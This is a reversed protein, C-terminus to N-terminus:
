PLAGGDLGEEADNLDGLSGDQDIIHINLGHRQGNEPRLKSHDRLYERERHTSEGECLVWHDKSSVQPIL